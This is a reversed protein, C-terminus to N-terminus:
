RCARGQRRLASREPRLRVPDLRAWYGTQASGGFNLIPATYGISFSSASTTSKIFHDNTSEPVCHTASPAGSPHNYGTGGNWQYPKTLYRDLQPCTDSQFYKGIEFETQFHNFSRNYQIAFEQAADTSVSAVGSGSFTGPNGSVSIGVGLSSSQGSGYTFYQDAEVITSYSQMVDILTQGLDQTLM